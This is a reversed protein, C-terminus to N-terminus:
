FFRDLACVLLRVCVYRRYSAGYHCSAIDVIMQALASVPVSFSRQLPDEFLGIEDMVWELSGTRKPVLQLVLFNGGLTTASFLHVRGDFDNLVMGLRPTKTADL